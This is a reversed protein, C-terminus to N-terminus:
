RKTNELKPNQTKVKIWLPWHDSIDVKKDIGYTTSELNRLWIWDLRLEFPILFVKRSFTSSDEFPTHFGADTFLKKTKPEANPQWTNMDGLIIAPMTNGYLSLDKIVAEYQQLKKDMGIRTEAHVSYFRIPTEGVKITAGLAVRRRKGPGENPLVIRHVDTLPYVSLIAVGTEEEDGEKV